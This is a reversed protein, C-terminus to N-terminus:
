EAKQIVFERTMSLGKGSLVASYKGPDAFQIDPLAYVSEGQSTELVLDWEMENFGKMGKLKRQVLSEGGASYINLEM